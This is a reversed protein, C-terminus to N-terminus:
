DSSHKQNMAVAMNKAKKGNINKVKKRGEYKLKRIGTIKESDM